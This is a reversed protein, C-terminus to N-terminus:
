PIVGDEILAVLTAIVDDIHICGCYEKQVARNIQTTITTFARLERVPDLADRIAGHAETGDHMHLVLDRRLRFEILTLHHTSLHMQNKSSISTM